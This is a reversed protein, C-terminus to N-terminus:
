LISLAAFLHSQRAAYFCLLVFFMPRMEVALTKCFLISAPNNKETKHKIELDGTPLAWVVRNLMQLADEQQAM